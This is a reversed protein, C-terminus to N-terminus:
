QAREVDQACILHFQLGLQMRNIEDFMHWLSRRILHQHKNSRPGRKESVMYKISLSSPVKVSSLTVPRVPFM